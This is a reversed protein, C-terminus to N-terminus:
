PQRRGPDTPSTPPKTAANNDGLIGAPETASLQCSIETDVCTGQGPSVERGVLPCWTAPAPEADCQSCDCVRIRVRIAGTAIWDPITFNALTPGNFEPAIFCTDRLPVSGTLKGMIAVKWRLIQGYDPPTGGVKNFRTPDFWDDDTAPLNFGSPPLTNQVITRRITVGPRPYFSVLNRQLLPAHNIYFTLVKSRLAVDAPDRGGADVRDAIGV